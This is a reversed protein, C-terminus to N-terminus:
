PSAPRLQQAFSFDSSNSEVEHTDPNKESNEKFSTPNQGSHYSPSTTDMDIDPIEYQCLDEPSQYKHLLHIPSSGELPTSQGTPPDSSTRKNRRVNRKAGKHWKKLSDAVREDFITTKMNSGMQMAYELEGM